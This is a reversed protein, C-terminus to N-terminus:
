RWANSMGIRRSPSHEQAQRLPRTLAQRHQREGHRGAKAPLVWQPDQATGDASSTHQAANTRDHTHTHQQASRQWGARHATHAHVHALGACCVATPRRHLLSTSGCVTRFHAHMRVRTQICGNGNCGLWYPCHLRTCWHVWVWAVERIMVGGTLREGGVWAGPSLASAPLQVRGDQLPLM